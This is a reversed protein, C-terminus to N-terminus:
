PLTEEEDEELDEFWEDDFSDDYNDAFPDEERPYDEDFRSLRHEQNFDTAM